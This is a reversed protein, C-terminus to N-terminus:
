YRDGENPGRGAAGESPEVPWNNKPVPQPAIRILRAPSFLSKKRIMSPKAIPGPLGAVGIHGPEGRPGQPGTEGVPGTQGRPGELGVPGKSGESGPLGNPGPPGMEGTIGMEGQPGREGRPGISGTPGAPGILGPAQIGQQGCEGVVVERVQTLTRLSIVCSAPHYVISFEFRGRADTRRAFRDDLVIESNEEDTSGLVWLEGATIKAADVKILASAPTASILISIHAAIHFIKKMMATQRWNINQPKVFINGIVKLKDIDIL